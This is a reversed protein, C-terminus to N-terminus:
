VESSLRGDPWCREYLHRMKEIEEDLGLKFYTNQQEIVLALCTHAICLTADAERRQPGWRFSVPGDPHQVLRTLIAQPTTHFQLTPWFYCTIYAQELGVEKAMTRLDKKNWSRQVRTTGCSECLTETYKHRVREYNQKVEAVQSNTLLPILDIGTDNAHNILKMQHVYHYEWFDNVEDSHADLYKSAVMREFMGRSLKLGAVGYGNGCNLVIEMFDEVALRGLFFITRQAPDETEFERQFIREFLNKLHSFAEGFNPHRKEFDM